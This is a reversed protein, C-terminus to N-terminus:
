KEVVVFFRTDGSALVNSIQNFGSGSAEINEYTLGGSSYVEWQSIPLSLDVSTLLDYKQNSTSNWEFGLGSSLYFIRLSISTSSLLSAPIIMIRAAALNGEGSGSASTFTGSYSSSGTVGGASVDVFRSGATDIIVPSGGAFSVQANRHPNEVFELRIMDSPNLGSLTFAVPNDAAIGGGSYLHDNLLYESGVNAGTDNWCGVNEFALMVGGGIDMSLEQPAGNNAGGFEIFGSTGDFEGTFLPGDTPGLDLAVVTVGPMVEFEAHITRDARVQSFNFQSSITTEEGDVLLRSIRYGPQPSITYSQGGDRYVETTGAPEISGGKGASAVVSFSELKFVVEISHNASVSEFTYSEVSGLSIGDVWVGSVEYGSDPTILVTLSNGYDVETEGSPFISGGVGATATITRPAYSELVLSLDDFYMSGGDMGSQEFYVTYRVSASGEPAVMSSRSGLVVGTAPDLKQTVSLEMWTGPTVNNANLVQSRYLALVTSDAALFRVDIWSMNQGVMLDQPHTLAWGSASWISGAEVPLEQYFGNENNPGSFDGFVKGAHSGSRVMVLEGGPQGGNYYRNTNTDVYGGPGNSGGEPSFGIWPALSSNEFGSNSLTNTDEAIGREYVRVYDVWMQKPFTVAPDLAGGFNGGIAMNLLIFHNHDFVWENSGLDAPSANHYNIGDVYWRIQNEDWEVAYVHYDDAVNNSFTYTNGFSNGAFYNPGHITGFVEKPQRGVYEMIDIEGCQPWGVSGIDSGLMWFAPWLGSGEPVKIRAEFRGYTWDWKGRTLLRASTHNRGGYSEQHAEILLQGNEIRANKTRNTYYQIENNGWGGGGIDYGWKAPDPASGDVQSFEDSWVLQWGPLTQASVLGASFLFFVFLFCACLLPVSKPKIRMFLYAQM